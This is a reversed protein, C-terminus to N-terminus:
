RRAADLAVDLEDGRLLRGCGPEDTRRARQDGDERRRRAGDRQILDVPAGIPEAVRVQREGRDGVKERDYPASTGSASGLRDLMRLLLSAFIVIEAAEVPDDFHM